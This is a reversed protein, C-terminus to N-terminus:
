GTHSGCGGFGDGFLGDDIDEAVDDRDLRDTRARQGLDAQEAGVGVRIDHGGALCKGSAIKVRGDTVSLGGSCDPRAGLIDASPPDDTPRRQRESQDDQEPEEDM